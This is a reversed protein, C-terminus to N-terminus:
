VRLLPVTIAIKPEWDRGKWNSRKAPATARCTFHKPYENANLWKHLQKRGESLKKDDLTVKEATLFRSNYDAMASCAQLCSWGKSHCSVWTKSHALLCLSSSTFSANSIWIAALFPLRLLSPFTFSCSQQTEAKLLYSCPLWYWYRHLQFTACPKKTVCCHSRKNVQEGKRQIHKSLWTRHLCGQLYQFGYVYSLDQPYILGFIGWGCM